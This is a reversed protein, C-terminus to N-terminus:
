ATPYAACQACVGIPSGAAAMATVDTAALPEACRYCTARPGYAHTLASCLLSLLLHAADGSLEGRQSDPLVRGYEDLLAGAIGAPTALLAVTYRRDRCRVPLTFSAPPCDGTFFDRLGDIEITEAM